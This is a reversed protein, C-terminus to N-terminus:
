KCTNNKKCTTSCRCKSSGSKCKCESKSTCGNTGSALNIGSKNQYDQLQDKLEPDILKLLSPVADRAVKGGTEAFGALIKQEREFVALDHDHGLSTAIKILTAQHESHIKNFSDGNILLLNAYVQHNTVMVHGGHKSWYSAHVSSVQAADARIASQVLEGYAVQKAQAGTWTALATGAQSWTM